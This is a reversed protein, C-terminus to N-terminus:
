EVVVELKIGKPNIMLLMNAKLVPKSMSPIVDPNASDYVISYGLKKEIEKLEVPDYNYYKPFISPNGGNDVYIVGSVAEIEALVDEKTVDQKFSRKEFSFAYLLVARINAEVEELSYGYAIHVRCGLDFHVPIFGEIRVSQGYACVKNIAEALNQFLVSSEDLSKVDAPAVILRAIYDGSETLEADVSAKAIGLFNRAFNEYDKLSVIRNLTLVTSPANIKADKMKEPSAAGSAAIPNTVSRIGFPRNSLLTLKNAAVAGELGIGKRYSATINEVGSPLRAGTIGDGFIITADGNDDLRVFYVLDKSGAGYLTPVEKWPVGNVTVGLTSKIGNPTSASVYTLPSVNLCFQQNIALSDGSGLTEHVTEGHTAFVVNGYVHVSALAYTHLLPAALVIETGRVTHNLSKVLALESVLPAVAYQGEVEDSDVDVPKGQVVIKQGEKLEYVKRDLMITSGFVPTDIPKENRALPTSACYIKTDQRLFGALCKKAVAGTMDLKLKTVKIPKPLGFGSTEGIEVDLVRCLEVYSSTPKKAGNRQRQGKFVIWSGPLIWSYVADLSVTIGSANSGIDFLKKFAVSKIIKESNAPNWDCVNYGFFSVQHKFVFVTPEVAAPWTEHSYSRKRNKEAVTIPKYGLPVPWTTACGLGLREAETKAWTICTLNKDRDETVGTLIRFDWRENDSNTAKELRESGVILIADGPKLGTKVGKLYLETLGFKIEHPTFQSPRLDNLAVKAVITEVTEFTQMKEDQGSTSMVKTGEAVRSQLSYGSSTEVMFVLPVSAAVGPKFEYGITRALELVSRRETATRLYGENIIREQYFTLVDAILAWSDLLAISLDDDERTTLNKLAPKRSILELMDAKFQGHTGVRYKLASLGPPNFVDVPTRRKLKAYCSCSGDDNQSM